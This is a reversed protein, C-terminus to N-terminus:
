GSGSLLEVETLLEGASVLRKTAPSFFKPLLGDVALDGSLLDRAERAYQEYRLHDSCGHAAHAALAAIVARVITERKRRFDGSREILDLCRKFHEASPGDGLKKYCQAASALAYYDNPSFQLALKFQNLADSFENAVFYTNGLLVLMRTRLRTQNADLKKGQNVAANELETIRNLLGQLEARCRREDGIIYSLIEAKTVPTLFEGIRTELLKASQEIEHLAESLEGWNKQILARFYHVFAFRMRYAENTTLEVDHDQARYQASRDFYALAEIVNNDYYALVGCTYLFTGALETGRETLFEDLEAVLSQLKIGRKYQEDPLAAFQMRSMKKFQELIAVANEFKQKKAREREAKMLEIEKITNAVKEEQELRFALTKQVVGIVDSVNKVPEFQQAPNAEVAALHLEGFRVQQSIAANQLKMIEKVIDDIGRQRQGEKWRLLVDRVSFFILVVTAVAVGFQLLKYLGEVRDQIQQIKEDKLALSLNIREELLATRQEITPANTNPPTPPRHPTRALEGSQMNPTSPLQSQIASIRGTLLLLFVSAGVTLAATRKKM